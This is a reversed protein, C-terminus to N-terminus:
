WHPWVRAGSASKSGNRAKKESGSMVLSVTAIPVILTHFRRQTPKRDCCGSSAAYPQGAETM